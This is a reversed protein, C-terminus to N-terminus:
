QFGFSVFFPIVDLCVDAEYLDNKKGGTVNQGSFDWLPDSAAMDPSGWQSAM